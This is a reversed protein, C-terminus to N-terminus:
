VARNITKVRPDVKIQSRTFGLAKVQKLM